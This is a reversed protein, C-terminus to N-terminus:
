TSNRLCDKLFAKTLRREIAVKSLRRERSLEKRESITPHHKSYCKFNASSYITPTAKPEEKNENYV